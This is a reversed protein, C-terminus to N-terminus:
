ENLVEVRDPAVIEKLAGAIQEKPYNSVLSVKTISIRNDELIDTIIELKEFKIGAGNLAARVLYDATYVSLENASEVSTEPLEFSLNVDKLSFVPVLLSLVFVVGLIFNISKKMARQPSIIQVAGMFVLAACIGFIGQMLRSM